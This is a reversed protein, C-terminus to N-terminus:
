STKFSIREIFYFVFERVIQGKESEIRIANVDSKSYEYMYSMHIGNRTEFVFLNEAANIKNITQPSSSASRKCSFYSLCFLHM